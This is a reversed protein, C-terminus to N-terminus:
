VAKRTALRQTLQDTLTAEIWKGAPRELHRASYLAVIITAVMPLPMFLWFLVPDEIGLLRKWILSYAALEIVPHWLYVGFSVSTIAGMPALWSTDSGGERDALAAFIIAVGFLALILYNNADSFMAAFVMALIAWALSQGFRHPTLHHAIACLLAGFVFDAAIRYAAWLKTNFWFDYKETAGFDAVELLAVIVTLLLALGAIRKSAFAFLVLPFLLYAFWEGSLSWSVYNFTLESEVGWAQLLLLNAPLSMLNYRTDAGESQFLGLHVCIAFVVFVSLTLLHLPYLRALRKILFRAYNEGTNQMRGYHEFILFGSMIFFMDLLPLMHEFWAIVPEPDPAHHSFHYAMVLLAALLRWAGFLRYEQKM